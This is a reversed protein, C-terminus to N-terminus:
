QIKIINNHIERHCNACVVICKSMEKDLHDKTNKTFSRKGAFQMINFSKEKPDIHHFELASLCKDYGCIACKEKKTQVYHVSELVRQRQKEAECAKCYQRYYKGNKAFLEVEKEKGCLICKKLLIVELTNFM